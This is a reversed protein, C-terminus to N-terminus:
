VDSFFGLRHNTSIRLRSPEGTPQGVEERRHESDPFRQREDRGPKACSVENGEVDRRDVTGYHRMIEGENPHCCRKAQM